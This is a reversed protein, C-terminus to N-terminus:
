ATRLWKLLENFIALGLATLTFVLLWVGIRFRARRIRRAVERNRWEEIYAGSAGPADEPGTGPPDIGPPSAQREDDGM